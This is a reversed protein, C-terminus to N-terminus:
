ILLDERAAKAREQLHAAAIEIIEQSNDAKALVLFGDCEVSVIEIVHMQGDEFPLTYVDGPNLPLPPYFDDTTM